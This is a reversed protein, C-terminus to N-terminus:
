RSIQELRSQDLDSGHLRALLTAMLLGGVFEYAVQSSNVEDYAARDVIVLFGVPREAPFRVIGDLAAEAFEAPLGPVLANSFNSQCTASAGMTLGPSLGIRVNRGSHAALRLEGGILARQSKGGVLRYVEVIARVQTRSNVCQPM